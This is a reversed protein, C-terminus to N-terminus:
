LECWERQLRLATTDPWQESAAPLSCPADHLVRYATDTVDPHLIAHHTTEHVALLGRDWLRHLDARLCIGNRVSNTRPGRYPRIHAADLVPEVLCGTVACGPYARIVANRFRSQGPREVAERLSRRREDSLDLADFAAEAGARGAADLNAALRAEAGRDLFLGLGRKQVGDIALDLADDKVTGGSSLALVQSPTEGTAAEVSGLILLDKNRIHSADPVGLAGALAELFPREVTSGRSCDFHAFGLLDSLIAMRPREPERAGRGKPTRRRPGAM